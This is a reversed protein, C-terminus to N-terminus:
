VHHHILLRTSKTMYTGSDERAIGAWIMEGKDNTHTVSGAAIIIKIKTLHLPSFLAHHVNANTSSDAEM